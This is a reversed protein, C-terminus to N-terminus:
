RQEGELRRSGDARILLDVGAPRPLAFLDYLDGERDAMFVLRRGLPRRAICASLADLWRQSEKDATAKRNRGKRKGFQEPDRVWVQQDIMGLPLGAVTCALTSHVFLGHQDLHQQYGLGEVQPQSSYDVWTTDSAMLVPEDDHEPWRALTDAYHGTRIADPSVSSNDFFRYTSDVMGACAQPIPATPQAAFADVILRLRHNLRADGLTVQTLEQEPLM